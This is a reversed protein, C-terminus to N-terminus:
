RRFASWVPVISASRLQAVGDRRQVRSQARRDHQLGQGRGGLAGLVARRHLAAAQGGGGLEFRRFHARVADSRDGSAPSAGNQGSCVRSIYLALPDVLPSDRDVMPSFLIPNPENQRM